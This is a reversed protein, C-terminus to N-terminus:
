VTHGIKLFSMIDGCLTEYKELANDINALIFKSDGAAGAKELTLCMDAFDNAGIMRSSSKLGHINITFSKTDNKSLSDKLSNMCTDKSKIYENLTELYIEMDGCYELADETNLGNIGTHADANSEAKQTDKSTEIKEKPIFSALTEELLAYDVPKSIYGDFGDKLFREKMGSIAHATLAIVPTRGNKGPLKRIENLAQTGSMDPMSEDMLIIDYDNEAAMKVATIGSDAEDVFAKTRKLLKSLVFLNVPTDDVILINATPIKIYSEDAKEPTKELPETISIKGTPSWDSVGQNVTFYFDSGKGYTSEFELRSGMLSLLNQTIIMGLGTGEKLRNNRKDFREFANFLKEKDEDKIGMGTDTVHFTLAINDSSIKRYDAKLTVTGEETYKVANNLINLIIQRIRLEDGSLVDPIDPNIDTILTLGKAKALTHTMQALNYLMSSLSYDSIILEMKGAEIKTLDLLNNILKLLTDGSNKIVSAYQRIDPDSAERLIMEDMGLIANIPTRIEHSMSSLFVSKSENAAREAQAKAELKEQIEKEQLEVLEATSVKMFRSIKDILPTRNDAGTKVPIEPFSASSISSDAEGERMVFCVLASNLWIIEDGIRILEGTFSGGSVKPSLTSYFNVEQQQDDNLYMYRNLCITLFMAEPCFPELEAAHEKARKLMDKIVAVSLRVKEGENLYSTTMLGGDETIGIIARAVPLGKRQTILPFEMIELALNENVPVGLYKHYLEGAPENDIELIINGPATKTITHEIGSPVWGQSYISKAHLDEGSFVAACVGFNLVGETNILYMDSGDGNLSGSAVGGTFQLDTGTLAFNDFFAASDKMALANIFLRVCVANEIAKLDSLLAKAMEKETMKSGDYSLIKVKSSDFITFSLSISENSISGNHIDMLATAGSIQIGPIKECLKETISKTNDKNRVADSIEVYVCSCNKYYSSNLLASVANDLDAANKIEFSLQHMSNGGSIKHQGEVPENYM